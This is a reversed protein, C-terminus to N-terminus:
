KCHASTTSTGPGSCDSTQETKNGTNGQGTTTTTTTTTQSNTSKGVNEEDSTICIVEGNIRDFTGGAAECEEQSPSVAVASSTGFAFLAASLGLVLQARRLM